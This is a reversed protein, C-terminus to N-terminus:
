SDSKAVSNQTDEPGELLLVSAASSPGNIGVRNALIAPLCEAAYFPLRFAHYDRMEILVLTLYQTAIENENPWKPKRKTFNYRNGRYRVNDAWEWAAKWNKDEVQPRARLWRWLVARVRKVHANSPGGCLINRESTM